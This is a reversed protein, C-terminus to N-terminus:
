RLLEARATGIGRYVAVIPLDPDPGQDEYIPDEDTGGTRAIIRPREDPWADRIAEALPDVGNRVDEFTWTRGGFSSLLEDWITGLKDLDVKPDSLPRVWVWVEEGDLPMVRKAYFWADRDKKTLGLPYVVYWDDLVPIADGPTVYLTGGEVFVAGHRTATEPPDDQSFILRLVASM